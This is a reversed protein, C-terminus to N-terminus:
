SGANTSTYIGGGSHIAVAALRTGDASSAISQWYTSPASTLTWNTGAASTLSNVVLGPLALTANTAPLATLGGLSGYNTTLGYQFYATTVLGNPNASGNLTANTATVGTVPLTTVTPQATSTLPLSLLSFWGLLTVVFLNNKM